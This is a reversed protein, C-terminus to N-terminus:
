AKEGELWAWSAGSMINCITGPSVGYQRALKGNREGAKRAARIALVDNTTLITAGHREGRNDRGHLRKDAENEARTAWRLHRPNCCLRNGCSHACDVRGVPAGHALQCVYRTAKVTKGGVGMTGYGYTNAKFPWPLCDDGTYRAATQAWAQAEGWNAQRAM